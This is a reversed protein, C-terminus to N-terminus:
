ICAEPDNEYALAPDNEYKHAPDNENVQGTVKEYAPDPDTEFELSPDNENEQVSISDNTSNGEHEYDPIILEVSRDDDFNFACVCGFRNDIQQSYNMMLFPAVAACLLLLKMKIKM